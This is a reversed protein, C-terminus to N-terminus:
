LLIWADRGPDRGAALAAVVSRTSAALDPLSSVAAALARRNTHTAAVLILVRDVGSDRQKAHVSRLLAQVDRLRTVAEVGIRVGAGTLVMDWARLDGSGPIPVELGVGWIPSLRGRLRALLGIQGQDRLPQNGPWARISLRLGVVGAHRALDDVRAALYDGREV